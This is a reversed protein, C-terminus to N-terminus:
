NAKSSKQIADHIAHQESVPLITIDAGNKLLIEIIPDYEIQAHSLRRQAALRFLANRSEAPMRAQALKTLFYQMDHTLKGYTITPWLRFCNPYTEFYETVDNNLGKEILFEALAFRPHDTKKDNLILHLAVCIESSCTLEKQIITSLVSYLSMLPEAAPWNHTLMSLIPFDPTPKLNHFLLIQLQALTKPGIKEQFVYEYDEFPDMRERSLIRKLNVDQIRKTNYLFHKLCLLQLSEPNKKLIPPQMGYNAHVIVIALFIYKKM